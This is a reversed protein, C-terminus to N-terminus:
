GGPAILNVLWHFFATTPGRVHTLHGTLSHAQTAYNLALGLVLLNSATVFLFSFISGAERHDGHHRHTSSWNGIVNWALTFGLLGSILQPHRVWYALVMVVLPFLPFVFPAIAILWNGKGAYGVHGGGRLSASLGTVRHGSILAFLAHTLEHQVTVVPHRSTKPRLMVLWIAVFAAAGVLLPVLAGPRRVLDRAVFGLAYVVGPLFVLSLFAIPWKLWGIVRDLWGVVSM